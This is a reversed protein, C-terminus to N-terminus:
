HDTEFPHCLHIRKFGLEALFTILKGGHAVTDTRSFAKRTPKGRETQRWDLLCRASEFDERWIVRALLPRTLLPLAVLAAAM